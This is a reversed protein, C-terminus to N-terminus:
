PRPHAVLDVRIKGEADKMQVGAMEIVLVQSCYLGEEGLYALLVYSVDGDIHSSVAAAGRADDIFEESVELDIPVSEVATVDPVRFFESGNRPLM